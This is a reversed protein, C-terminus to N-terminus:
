RVLLIKKKANHEQQLYDLITDHVTINTITTAFWRHLFTHKSMLTLIYCVSWSWWRIKRLCSLRSLLTNYNQMSETSMCIEALTDHFYANKKPACQTFQIADTTRNWVETDSYHLTSQLQFSSSFSNGQQRVFHMTM